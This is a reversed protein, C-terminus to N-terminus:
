ESEAAALNTLVQIAWTKTAMQLYTTCWSELEKATIITGAKLHIYIQKNFLGASL